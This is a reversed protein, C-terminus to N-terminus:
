GLLYYATAGIAGACPLTIVWAILIQTISRYHASGTLVGIGFLSGVSVHTTSVPFGLRSAFVVLLGTAINASVAQGHNMDTIRHGMTHAVKRANLLGGVAMAAAVAALGWRIDVFQVILLLATIKPTDNLGRAFSVVGASLIHIGDVFKQMNIGLFYGSYRQQCRSEEDICIATEQKGTGVAVITNSQLLPVWKNESGVCICQEKTIAARIRVFRCGAYISAGLFLALLPSVLLPLLFTSLLVQNNVSGSAAVLGSGVLSGVLSHTTSIPFGTLTAILVASGSGIAVAFLFVESGVLEAPVLGKGSFSKLLSQALLLSCASGLLTCFTGWRIATKYDMTQSGYLTAVGKFNDNAGNAYALFCVALFLLLTLMQNFREPYYPIAVTRM